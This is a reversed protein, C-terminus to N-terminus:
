YLFTRSNKEEEWTKQFETMKWLIGFQMLMGEPRIVYTHIQSHKLLGFAPSLVSDSDKPQSLGLLENIIVILAYVIDKLTGDVHRKFVELTLSGIGKWPLRNWHKVVSSIKGLVCNLGGRHCSSTIEEQGTVQQM